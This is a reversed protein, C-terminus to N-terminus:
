GADRSHDPQCLELVDAAFPQSIWTFVGWPEKIKQFLSSRLLNSCSSPRLKEKESEQAQDTVRVQVESVASPRDVLM